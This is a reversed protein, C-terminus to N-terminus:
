DARVVVETASRWRLEMSGYQASIAAGFPTRLTVGSGAIATVTGAGIRGIMIVTNAELQPTTINVAGAANVEVMSGEDSQLLTYDGTKLSTPIPGDTYANAALLTNADGTDAYDEVTSFDTGPYRDIM